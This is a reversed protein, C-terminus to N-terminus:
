RKIFTKVIADSGFTFVAHFKGAPSGALDVSYNYQGTSVAQELIIDGTPDFVKIQGPQTTNSLFIFAISLAPNPYTVILESKFDPEVKENCSIFLVVSLIVAIKQM